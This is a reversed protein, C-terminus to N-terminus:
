FRPAPSKKFKELREIEREIYWVGKRLDEIGNKDFARWIYKIANGLNFNMHEVIEICEIGSPHKTYHKPHNVMDHETFSSINERILKEENNFDKKLEEIYDNLPGDM